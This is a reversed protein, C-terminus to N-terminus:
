SECIVIYVIILQHYVRIYSQVGSGGHKWLLLYYTIKM